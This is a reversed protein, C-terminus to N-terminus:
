KHEWNKVQWKSPRVTFMWTQRYRRSCYKCFSPINGDIFSRRLDRIAESNYARSSDFFNGYKQDCGIHCCPSFNGNYNVIAQNFLSACYFDENEKSFVFPLSVSVKYDNRSMIEKFVSDVDEPQLSLFQSWKNEILDMTHMNQLIVQGVGLSEGFRIMDPMQNVNNKNVVFSINVNLPSGGQRKGLKVLEKIGNVCSDFVKKNSIGKQSIYEEATIADLSVTLNKLKSRIIEDLNSYIAMGNTNFTINIKKSDIYDIIRWIEPHLLAEGGELSCTHILPAYYDFISRFQNFPIDIGPKDFYNKDQQIFYCHPCRANCRNTIVFHLRLPQFVRGDWCVMPRGYYKNQFRKVKYYLLRKIERFPIGKLFSFSKKSMIISNMINSEVGFYRSIRMTSCFFIM